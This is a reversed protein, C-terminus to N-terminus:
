VRSAKHLGAMHKEGYCGPSAGQGPRFYTRGLLHERNLAGERGLGLGAM